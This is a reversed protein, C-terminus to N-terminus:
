PLRTHRVCTAAYVTEPLGTHTLLTELLDYCDIMLVGGGAEEHNQRWDGDPPTPASIMLESFRPQFVVGPHLDAKVFQWWSAVRLTTKRRRAHRISEVAEAFTRGLPPRRWVHVGCDAAAAGLEVGARAGDHILLVDVEGHALLARHDDCWPVNPLAESRPTHTHAVLRVSDIKDLTRALREADDRNAAIAARLPTSRESSPKLSDAM